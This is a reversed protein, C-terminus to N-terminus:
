YHAGSCVVENIQLGLSGEWWRHSCVAERLGMQPFMLYMMSGGATVLLVTLSLNQYLIQGLSGMRAVENHDEVGAVAQADSM